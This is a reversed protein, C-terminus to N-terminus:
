TSTARSREGLVQARRVAVVGPASRKPPPLVLAHIDRILGNETELRVVAAVRRRVYAVVGPRREISVPVLVSDTGPGFLALLRPAIVSRGVSTELPGFGFLTAEGVVDPDLVDILAGIDGGACAEVFRETVSRHHKDDVDRRRVEDRSTHSGERIARRARSALQRCAATTRGVTEGVAAYPFGFIDHLVFATREAPSLRDLVVAFALQVQDDLTVRDAPDAALMPQLSDLGDPLPTPAVSEHRHHASRIRDLCLRRVVVALWGTVDDLEDLDVRALRGFAEQVVDEADAPDKLVRRALQFMRRRDENWVADLRPDTTAAVPTPSPERDMASRPHRYHEEKSPAAPLFTVDRRRTVNADGADDHSDHVVV